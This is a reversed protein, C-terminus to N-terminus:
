ENSLENYVIKVFMEAPVGAGKMEFGETPNSTLIEEITKGEGL